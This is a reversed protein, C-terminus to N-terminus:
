ATIKQCTVAKRSENSCLIGLPKKLPFKLLTADPFAPENASDQKHGM